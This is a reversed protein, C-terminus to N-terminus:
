EHSNCAADEQPLATPRFWSLAGAPNSV